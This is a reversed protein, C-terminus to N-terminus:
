SPAMSGCQLTGHVDGVVKIPAELELLNPQALFLDKAQTCLWNIETEELKVLKGPRAGRVELCKEIIEDVTPM